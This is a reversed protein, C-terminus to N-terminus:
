STLRGGEAALRRLLPSVSDPGIMADLSDVIRPLGIRDAWCMPGGTWVPWGYGTALAIDVDSARLAIGEEVVKAGENVVPYLLREVIQADDFAQQPVNARAAFERIVQEAVPSPAARRQEDYDYYGGNKKQGWRGMECLVEQVTRGASNDRDWGIVDLGVLDFMQFPGMAFGYRNMARDIESPTPGELVLAEAAEMRPKMVRNAIFGDCVGSLVAVKGLRRGLSMGTAIVADSTRAGRVVELLRMINAPAFFHLGIVQDPRATVAAIEDLDLFSTNSALIAGAKAVADIEKFIAQKLAMSEFIAEVVLDAGSVADELSSGIRLLGVRRMGEEPSIRGKDALDGFTKHIRAAGREAADGAKDVLFVPYGANLFVMAIGTGMTGAGIVAVREVTLPQVGREIPIKGATREAFFLHRQAISEQSDVLEEFLAWERALGEDFTLTAAAEIAQLILGPAKFGQLDRKHTARFRELAERTATADLDVALDRVRRLPEGRAILQQAYLIAGPLLDGEVIRDILGDALAKTAGIPRGGVILTLAKEIGVLRPVRQTGGAGPLLGLSVEPLGLKASSTAVRYHCALALEMGGGLATGHIAAVVPKTSAEILDFVANLDPQQLPKGFESIDAGAFFTRGACHIVIGHADADAVARRLGAELAVRVAHGLANVPPSDITLIAIGDAVAYTSIATVRSM